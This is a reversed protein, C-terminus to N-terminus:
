DQAPETREPLTADVAAVAAHHSQATVLWHHDSPESHAPRHATVRQCLELHGDLLLSLEEAVPRENDAVVHCTREAEDEAVFYDKPLPSKELDPRLHFGVFCALESM